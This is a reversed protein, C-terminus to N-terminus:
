GDKKVFPNMKNENNLLCSNIALYYIKTSYHTLNNITNDTPSAHLSDFDSKRTIFNM